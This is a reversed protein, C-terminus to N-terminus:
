FSVCHMLFHVFDVLYVLVHHLFNLVNAMYNCVHIGYSFNVFFLFQCFRFYRCIITLISLLQHIFYVFVLELPELLLILSIVSIFSISLFVNNVCLQSNIVHIGLEQLKIRLCEIKNKLEEPNENFYEKAINRWTTSDELDDLSKASTGFADKVVEFKNETM